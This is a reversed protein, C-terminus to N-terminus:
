FMTPPPCKTQADSRPRPLPRPRPTTKPLAPQSPYPTRCRVPLYHRQEIPDMFTIRLNKPRSKEPEPMPTSAAAAPAAGNSAAPAAGDDLDANLAANAAAFDDTFEEVYQIGDEADLRPSVKAPM